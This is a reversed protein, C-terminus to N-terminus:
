RAADPIDVQKRGIVDLQEWRGHRWRGWLTLGVVIVHITAFIWPGKSGLEPQYCVMLTGGGVMITWAQASSVMGPWLTDGAGRLANSYTIAVADFLQFMAVFIMLQTGIKIVTDDKSFIQMLERGFTVFIVAMMGMYIMNILTGLRARRRALDNRGQGISRGVITSVAIGIGIAPMFSLETFRWCTATAALHKTGFAGIIFALFAAWATINLVFEIGSPWGVRILRRMKDLDFGWAHLPDFKAANKGFCMAAMLWLVRVGSAIVTGWAAGDVGMQPLGWKGFVLGYSLFANIINAGV